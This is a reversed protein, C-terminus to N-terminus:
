PDLRKKQNLPLADHAAFLLHHLRELATPLGCAACQRQPMHDCATEVVRPAEDAREQRRGDM